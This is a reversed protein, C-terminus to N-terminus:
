VPRRRSARGAGDSDFGNGALIGARAHRPRVRRVAAGLDVHPNVDKTFDRFHVIRSDTRPSNPAALYLDDHWSTIGSDIVAIGVGKGTLKFQQRAVTSAIAAGTRELTAFAARDPGIWLV